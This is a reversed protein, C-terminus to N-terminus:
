QLSGIVNDVLFDMNRNVSDEMTSGAPVVVNEENDKIEGALVDLEGSTIQEQVTRVQEQIDEPVLDQNFDSITACGEASGWYYDEEITGDAEEFKTLMDKFIPEWNWMYSVLVAGPAYDQMDVHYGTCYAGGEECAQPIAPSSANIGMYKIGLSILSNACEAEAQPDYWSNCFVLRVTANPNAYKAGLAYANIGQIVSAEPMGASYGLEDSDSMLGCLYGCLFMGEYSRIQYGILNGNMSEGDAQAFQVDPYSQSLSELSSKYGTSLGMIFNCGNMILSEAANTCDTGTEAVNEVVQLQDDSMGLEEMTKQLGEYQAQIWGGDDVTTNVIAGIVIDSFDGSSDSSTEESSSGSSKSESEGSSCGALMSMTLAAAMLISLVRKKM